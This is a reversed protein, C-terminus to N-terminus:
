VVNLEWNGGQERIVKICAKKNHKFLRELEEWLDELAHDAFRYKRM